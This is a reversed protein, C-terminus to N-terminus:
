GNDLINEHKRLNWNKRIAKGTRFEELWVNSYKPNLNLNDPLYTLIHQSSLYFQIFNGIDPRYFNGLIGLSDKFDHLSKFKKFPDNTIFLKNLIIKESIIENHGQNNIASIHVTTDNIKIFDVKYYKSTDIFLDCPFDKKFNEFRGVSLKIRGSDKLYFCSYSYFGSDANASHKTFIDAKGRHGFGWEYFTKIKISDLDEVIDLAKIEIQQDSFRSDTCSALTLFIWTTFIITSLKM